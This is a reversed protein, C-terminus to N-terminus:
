GSSRARIRVKIPRDPRLTGVSRCGVARGDAREIRFERLVMGLILQTEVLSFRKGICVRPGASFPFYAFPHRGRSREPAFRDPDFREPDPWFEPLRHTIYPSLLVFSGGPVRYGCVQDDALVNRAIVWAPPYLRLVEDLVRPLYELRNIEAAGLASGPSLRDVEEQVRAAVDPKGSLAYLTWTLLSATTEHGALYLTIVEDRLQRDSM